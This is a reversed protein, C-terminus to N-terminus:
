AEFYTICTPSAVEATEGTAELAGSAADVSFAVVNNSDQNAVMLLKEDPTLSFGRPRRGGSSQHGIPQLTHTATDVAYLAISDHGRNSAYVFRGARDVHIDATKTEGAFDSPLTSVDQLHRLAGSDEIAFVSV